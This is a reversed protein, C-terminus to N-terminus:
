PIVRLVAIFNTKSLRVLLEQFLNIKTYWKYGTSWVFSMNWMTVNRLITKNYLIRPGVLCSIYIGNFYVVEFKFM